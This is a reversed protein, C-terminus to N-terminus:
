DFKVKPAKKIEEGGEFYDEPQNHFL